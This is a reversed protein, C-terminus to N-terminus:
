GLLGKRAPRESRIRLSHEAIEEPTPEGRRPNADAVQDAPRAPGVDIVQDAPQVVVKVQPQGMTWKFLLETAKLDGKKAREVLSKVIAAVDAASVGDYLANRMSEQWYSVESNRRIEGPM